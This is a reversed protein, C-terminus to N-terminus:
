SNYASLISLFTCKLKHFAPALERKGIFGYDTLRFCHKIKLNTLKRLARWVLLFGEDGASDWREINLVTLDTFSTALTTPPFELGCTHYREEFYRASKENISLREVSSRSVLGRFGGIMNMTKAWAIKRAEDPVALVVNGGMRFSSIGSAIDSPRTDINISKLNPWQVRSMINHPVTYSQYDSCGISLEQLHPFKLFSLLKPGPNVLSQVMQYPRIDAHDEEIMFQWDQRSFVNKQILDAQLNVFRVNFVSAETILEAIRNCILGHDFIDSDKWAEMDIVELNYRGRRQVYLIVPNLFEEVVMYPMEAFDPSEDELDFIPLKLSKLSSCMELMKIVVRAEKRNKVVFDLKLESLKQFVFPFRIDDLFLVDLISVKDSCKFCQRKRRCACSNGSGKVSLGLDEKDDGRRFTLSKLTPGYMALFKYVMEKSEKHNIILQFRSIPAKMSVANKLGYPNIASLKPSYCQWM